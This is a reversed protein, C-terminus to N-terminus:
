QSLFDNIRTMIEDVSFNSLDHKDFELRDETPIREAGPIDRNGAVHDEDSGVQFTPVGDLAPIKWSEYAAIDVVYEISLGDSLEPNDEAFERLAEVYGRGYAAGMSHTFVKITEMIKGTEKDRALANIIARADARAQERGRRARSKYNSFASGSGSRFIAREYFGRKRSRENVRQMVRDAFSGWYPRCCARAGFLTFAGNDVKGNIFIVLKGDPDFANSPNGLVYNYPSYAPYKDALPDTSTWRGLASMYYRAGAYHMGTEADLEHGTYDEAAPTGETVSRGPMRLGFPYYDRTEVVKDTETGAADPDVV